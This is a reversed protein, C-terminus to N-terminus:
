DALDRRTAAIDQNAVDTEVKDKATVEQQNIVAQQMAPTNRLNTQQEVIRGAQTLADAVAAISGVPLPPLSVPQATPTSAKKSGFLGAVWSLISMLWKM